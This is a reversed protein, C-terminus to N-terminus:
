QQAETRAPQASQGAPPPPRDLAIGRKRAFQRALEVVDALPPHTARLGALLSAPQDAGLYEVLKTDASILAAPDGTMELALRHARMEDRRSVAAWLPGLLLEMICLVLLIRPLVTLVHLPDDFESVGGALMWIVVIAGVLGALVMRQRRRYHLLKGHALEHALIARLEEDDLLDFLAEGLFVRERKKRDVGHMGLPYGAENRTVRLIVDSGPAQRAWAGLRSLRDAHRDDPLTRSDITKVDKGRGLWQIVAILVVAFLVGPLGAYACTAFVLTAAGIPRFAAQLLATRIHPRSGTRLVAARLRGLRAWIPWALVIYGLFGVLIVLLVPRLRGAPDPVAGPLWQEQVVVM